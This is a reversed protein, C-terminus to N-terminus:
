KSVQHQPRTAFLVGFVRGTPSTAENFRDVLRLFLMGPSAGLALRLSM